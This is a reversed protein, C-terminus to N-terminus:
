FGHLSGDYHLYNSKIKGKRLSCCAGGSGKDGDLDEIFGLRFDVNPQTYGFRKMQSKLNRQAVVLQEETMDVGIVHGQPGVLRSALYADRGAGCGLDLVTCGELLPPLPSGCGYFRSLVEHNIEALAAKAATSLGENSCCCGSTKLDDTNRLVKGYYECLASQNFHQRTM